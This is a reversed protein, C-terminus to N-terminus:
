ATVPEASPARSRARLTAVAQIVVVALIFLGRIVNQLYTNIELGMGNVYNLIQFIIALLGVGAITAGVSGRGGSLLTGGLVVAAIATLEWGQAELPNGTTTKALLFAGALGSLAGSLMFVAIQIRGVRLGMMEASRRDGGIALVHTGFSTRTYVLGAVVAIAALVLFVLPVLGIRSNYFTVLDLGRDVPVRGNGALILSLGRLAMLMALTVIFSPLGLRGVLLGSVLGALLGVGVAGAVAVLGGYPALLGAVISATVCVGALSLDIEGASIVYTAGIAMLGICILDQSSLIAVINYANYFQPMALAVLALVGALILATPRAALARGLRRVTRRRGPGAPAPELSRDTSSMVTEKM